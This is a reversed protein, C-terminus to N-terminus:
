ISLATAEDERGLWYALEARDKVGAQRVARFVTTRVTEVPLNLREAAAKYLWGCEHLTRLTRRQGRTLRFLPNAPVPVIM